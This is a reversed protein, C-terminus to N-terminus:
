DASVRKRVRLLWGAVPVLVVAWLWQWNEGVFASARQGLTVEVAITKDFTRIARRSTADGVQLLATLTLHLNHRGPQTPTIEWKWETPELSSVAQEEPTISTIEFGPGTLRAEMRSAVRVRDGQKVGEAQIMQSLQDVSKNIDLLLQITATGKLNLSVPANFAVSAQALSSLISDVLALSHATPDPVAVDGSPREIPIAPKDPVPESSPLEAPVPAETPVPQTREPQRPIPRPRRQARKPPRNAKPPEPREVKQRRAPVAKGLKFNVV